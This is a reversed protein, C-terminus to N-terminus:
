IRVVYSDSYWSMYKIRQTNALDFTETKSVNIDSSVFDNTKWWKRKMEYNRDNRTLNSSKSFYLVEPITTLENSAYTRALFVIFERKRSKEARKKRQALTRSMRQLSSSPPFTQLRDALTMTTSDLFEPSRRFKQSRTPSM